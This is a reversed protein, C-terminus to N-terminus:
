LFVQLFKPFFNLLFSQYFFHLSIYPPLSSILAGLNESVIGPYNKSPIKPLNESLSNQLVKALYGQLLESAICSPNKYSNRSFNRSYLNTFSDRSSQIFYNEFSSGLFFYSSKKIVPAIEQSIRSLNELDPVPSIRPPSKLSFFAM